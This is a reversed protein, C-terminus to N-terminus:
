NRETSKDNISSLIETRSLKQLSRGSEDRRCVAFYECYSCPSSGNYEAPSIKLKGSLISSVANQALRECHQMLSNLEARSFTNSGYPIGDGNLSLKITSLKKSAKEMSAAADTDALAFGEMQLKKMRDSEDKDSPIFPLSVKMYFGGAPSCGPVINIAAILYIMLQISLGYYLRCLDFEAKGSKYDVVRLFGDESLDVRDIRGILTINELKHEFRVESGAIHMGTLSARVARTALLVEEKLRKETFSFRKSNFIGKNHEPRMKCAADDIIESITSDDANQWSLRRRELTRTVKELLSHIYSGASMADERLLNLEVPKIGYDMFHKYSCKYFDEILSASGRLEGYLKRSTKPSISVNGPRMYSALRSVSTPESTLFLALSYPSLEEGDALSRLEAAACCFTEARSLLSPPGFTAAGSIRKVRDIIYSPGASTNYILDLAKGASFARMILAKQESPSLASPFFSLVDALSAAESNTIIGGDDVAHPVLSDCIGVAIMKVVDPFVSHTLEGVTIQGQLPPTVAISSSEFGAAIASYLSHADADALYTGAQELISVTRPFTQRTFAAEEALGADKLSDALATLKEETNLVNLYELLRKTLSGCSGCLESLPSFARSRIDEMSEDALPKRLMWGKIGHEKIFRILEDAEEPLVPLLGTKLHLLLDRLRWGESIIRLASLILGAIDSHILTRKNEIFFPLKSSSFVEDLIDSYVSMDSVCIAIDQPRIGEQIYKISLAAAAKAEARADACKYITISETPIDFKRYPYRFLERALLATDDTRLDPLNKANGGLIQALRNGSCFIDNEPDALLYVSVDAAINDLAKLADIRIKSLSDFSHVIIHSDKLFHADSIKSYAFQELQAEDMGASSSEIRSLLKSLDSLKDKLIGDAGDIDKLTKSSIGESRLAKVLAALRQHLTDDSRPDLVDLESELSLLAEKALMTMGVSDITPLARGAVRELLMRALKEFSIVEISYFGDSNAHRVIRRETNFSLQAPVIIYTHTLTDLADSIRRDVALDLAYQSDSYYVNM